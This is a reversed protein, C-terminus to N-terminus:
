ETILKVTTGIGCLFHRSLVQGISKVWNILDQKKNDHAILAIHKQKGIINCDM